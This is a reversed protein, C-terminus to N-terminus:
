LNYIYIYIYLYISLMVERAVYRIKKDIGGWKKTTLQYSGNKKRGWKQNEPYHQTYALHPYKKPILIGNKFLADFGPFVIGICYWVM